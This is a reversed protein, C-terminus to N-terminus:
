DITSLYLQVPLMGEKDLYSGLCSFDDLYDVRTVEWTHTSHVLNDVSGIHVNGKGLLCGAKVHALLQIGKSIYAATRFEFGVSLVFTKKSGEFVIQVSVMPYIDFGNFLMSKDWVAHLHERAGAHQVSALLKALAGESFRSAYCVGNELCKRKDKFWTAVNSGHASQLSRPMFAAKGRFKFQYSKWAAADGLVAPDVPLWPAVTTLNSIFSTSLQGLRLINWFAGLQQKNVRSAWDKGMWLAMLLLIDNESVVEVEDSEFFALVTLFKVHKFEELLSNNSILSRISYRKLLQFLCKELLNKIPAHEVLEPSTKKLSFVYNVALPGCDASSIASIAQACQDTCVELRDALRYVQVLLTVGNVGGRQESSLASIVEEALDDSYMSRFLVECALLEEQEVELELTDLQFVTLQHAPPSVLLMVRLGDGTAQLDRLEKARLLMAKIVPSKSALIVKHTYLSREDDLSLGTCQRKIPPGDSALDSSTCSGGESSRLVLRLDALDPQNFYGSKFM